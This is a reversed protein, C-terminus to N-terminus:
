PTSSLFELIANAVGRAIAARGAEDRLVAADGDNTVVLLEVLAAPMLSPRKELSLQGPAFGLLSADVGYSEVESRHLTGGRGLVFLPYCQGWRTDWCRDDWLGRDRAAYGYAGLESLVHSTLLGALRRNDGAWPRNSDWWAEVGNAGEDWAANSHISVLADAPGGDAGASNAIDVRAQLDVRSVAFQAFRANAAYVEVSAAREVTRRTLVVEVGAERLLVEVRLAMELNSDRESIGNTFVGHETGGHGPDLVVVLARPAKILQGPRPTTRAFLPGSPPTAEAIPLLGSAAAAGGELPSAIPSAALSRPALELLPGGAAPSAGRSFPRPGAAAIGAATFEAAAAVTARGIAPSGSAEGDVSVIGGGWIVAAFLAILLLLLPVTFWAVRM